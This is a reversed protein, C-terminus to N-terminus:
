WADKLAIKNMKLQLKRLISIALATALFQSFLVQIISIKCISYENFRREKVENIIRQVNEDTPRVFYIANLHLLKEKSPNEILEVLYVNKKL